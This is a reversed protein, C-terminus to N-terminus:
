PKVSLIYLCDLEVIAFFNIEISLESLPICGGEGGVPVLFELGNDILLTLLFSRGDKSFEM